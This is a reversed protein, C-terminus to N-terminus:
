DRHCVVIVTQKSAIKYIDTSSMKSKRNAFSTLVGNADLFQKVTTGKIAFNFNDSQSINLRKVAVGVINNRKDYILGGSNGKKISVDTDFQTIDNEYGKTANVLGPVLRM